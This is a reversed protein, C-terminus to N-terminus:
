QPNEPCNQIGTTPVSILAVPLASKKGSMESYNPHRKL